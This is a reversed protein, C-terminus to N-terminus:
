VLRDLQRKRSLPPVWDMSKLVKATIAETKNEIAFIAAQNLLTSLEGIYGESMSLLQSAMTTDQLNSPQKLPLMREFSMLLSLYEDDLQWRPLVLLNFRNSLQPDTQIARYADKTGVGVIPIQLENGLYKIVNLFIKQRNTSGALVHHIEDIILMKLGLTKLLGIVQFQKKDVRDHAKYVAFLLDLIANYFRGEDATPPAQVMLVPVNAYDGKPNDNAPHKACFRNILMTKGNNTDGVILFNPMRHTKPYTLVDELKALLNNAQPYGIWRPARIKAVRESMPLDLWSHISPHLHDLSM